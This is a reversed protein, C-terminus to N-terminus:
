AAHSETAPPQKPPATASAIAQLANDILSTLTVTAEDDPDDLIVDAQFKESLATEFHTITELVEFSTLGLEGVLADDDDVKAAPPHIGAVDAIIGLLM